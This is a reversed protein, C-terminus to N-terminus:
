VNIAVLLVTVGNESSRLRYVPHDLFHCRQKIKRYSGYIYVSKYWEKVTVASFMHHM